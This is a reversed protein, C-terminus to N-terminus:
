GFADDVEPLPAEIELSRMLLGVALALVSEADGSKRAAGLGSTGQYTPADRAGVQEARVMALAPLVGM